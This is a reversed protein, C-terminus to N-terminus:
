RNARVHFWKGSLALKLRQPYPFSLVKEKPIVVNYDFAGLTSASRRFAERVVRKVANREVSTGRAKLTIGLRPHKLENAVRFIVCEGLRAVQRDGFFRLFESRVRLRRAPDFRYSSSSM